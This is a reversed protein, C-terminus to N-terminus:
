GILKNLFLYVVNVFIWYLCLYHILGLIINVAASIGETIKPKFGQLPLCSASGGSLCKLAEPGFGLFRLQDREQVFDSVKGGWFYDAHM